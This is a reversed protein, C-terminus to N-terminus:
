PPPMGQPMPTDAAGRRFVDFGTVADRAQPISGM